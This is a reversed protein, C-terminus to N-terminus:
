FCSTLSILKDKVEAEACEMIRVALFFGPCWKGLHINFYLNIEIFNLCIKVRYVLYKQSM